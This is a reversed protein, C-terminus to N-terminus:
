GLHVIGREIAVIAAQTRDSVGLKDLVRSVHIKVTKEAIQLQNGIDRNSWGKAMLRLVDLERATLENGQTRAALVPGLVAQLYRKGAHVTLIAQVLEEAGADKTL